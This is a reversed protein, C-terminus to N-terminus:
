SESGADTDVGDTQSIEEYDEDSEASEASDAQLEMFSVVSEVESRTMAVSREAAQATLWFAHPEYGLARVAAEVREVSLLENPGNMLALVSELDSEPYPIKVGGENAEEWFATVDVLQAKVRSEVEEISLLAM